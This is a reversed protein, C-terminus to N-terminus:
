TGSELTKLRLIMAEVRSKALETKEILAAREGMLKEQQTRLSRNEDSLRKCLDVLEDVQRELAQWDFRGAGETADKENM